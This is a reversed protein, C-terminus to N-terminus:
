PKVKHTTTLIYGGDLVYTYVDEVETATDKLKEVRQSIDDIERNWIEKRSPGGIRRGMITVGFAMVGFVIAGVVCLGTVTYVAVAVPLPARSATVNVCAATMGVGFGTCFSFIKEYLGARRYAENDNPLGHILRRIHDIDTKSINLYQRWVRM